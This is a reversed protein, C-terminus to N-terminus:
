QHSLPAAHSPKNLRFMQEVDVADFKYMRNCFECTTEINGTAALMIELESQGLAVLSAGVRERSCTCRFAVPEPDFLRIDEEHYLRRLLEKPSLGLLEERRVSSTLLSIRAWDDETRLESPLIQILLGVARQTDAALRIMTPLQESHEFYHEIADQLREGELGVVGQYRKGEIPDITLVLHGDGTVETLTEEEEPEYSWRALSRFHRDHTAQAILATVPGPGQAQLILAGKLKLTASLLLVAASMEGLHPIVAAPYPHRELVAQWAADLHVLAGRVGIGEFLYRYLRDNGSPNM